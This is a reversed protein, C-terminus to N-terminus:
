TRGSEAEVRAEFEARAPCGMETWRELDAFRWCKRGRVTIGRPMEGTADLRRISRLSFPLIGRDVIQRASVLLPEMPAITASAANKITMLDGKDGDCPKNRGVKSGICKWSRVTTSL